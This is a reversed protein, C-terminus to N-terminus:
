QRTLPATALNTRPQYPPDAQPPSNPSTNTSPPAPCASSDPSRPSATTQSPSYSAPTASRNPTSPPHDASAYAAHEPPPSAKTPAKSSSSGAVPPPPTSHKTSPVSASVLTASTASSPSSTKPSRALRDLSPVVLTDGPRIYDLCKLLEPRDANKGSKKDAFSRACGAETLALLQRDLNQGRTSVRAYGILQGSSQSPEASLVDDPLTLPSPLTTVGPSQISVPGTSNDFVGLKRCTQQVASLTEPEATPETTSRTRSDISKRVGDAETSVKLTKSHRWRRHTTM